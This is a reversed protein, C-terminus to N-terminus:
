SDFLLLLLFPQFWLSCAVSLYLLCDFWNSEVHLSRCFMSSTLQFHIPCACYMSCHECNILSLQISREAVQFSNTTTHSCIVIAIALPRNFWYNLWHEFWVVFFVISWDLTCNSQIQGNGLTLTSTQHFIDNKIIILGFSFSPYSPSFHSPSGITAIVRWFPFQGYHAHCIRTNLHTTRENWSSGGGNNGINGCALFHLWDLTLCSGWM